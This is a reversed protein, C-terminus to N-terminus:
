TKLIEKNRSMKGLESYSRLRCDAERLNWAKIIGTKIPVNNQRRMVSTQLWSSSSKLGKYIDTKIHVNNQRLCIKANVVLGFETLLEAKNARTKGTQAVPFGGLCDGERPLLVVEPPPHRFHRHSPRQIHLILVHDGVLQPVDNAPLIAAVM